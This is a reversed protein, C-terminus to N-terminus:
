RKPSSCWGTQSARRNCRVVVVIGVVAASATVAVFLVSRIIEVVPPGSVIGNSLAAMLGAQPATLGGPPLAAAIKEAAM